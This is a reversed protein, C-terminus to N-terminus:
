HKLFKFSQSAGNKGLIGVIYIGKSLHATNVFQSNRSASVMQGALTHIKLAAIEGNVILATETQYYSFSAKNDFYM